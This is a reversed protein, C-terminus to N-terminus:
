QAIVENEKGMSHWKPSRSADSTWYYKTRRVRLVQKRQPDIWNTWCFLIAFSFLSSLSKMQMRNWKNNKFTLIIQNGKQFMWVNKHGMKSTRSTTLNAVVLLYTRCRVPSAWWQRSYPPVQIANKATTEGWNEM